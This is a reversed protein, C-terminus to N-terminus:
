RVCLAYGHFSKLNWLDNGGLFLVRWASSSGNEERTWYWDNDSFGKQKYCAQYSINKNNKKWNDWEGGCDVVVKKLDDRSPM